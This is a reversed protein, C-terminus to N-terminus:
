KKKLVETPPFTSNPSLSSVGFHLGWFCIQKSGRKGEQRKGRMGEQLL